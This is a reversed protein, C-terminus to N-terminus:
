RSSRTRAPRPTAVESRPRAAAKRLARHLRVGLAVPDALDPWTVRLVTWGEEEIADQRRKEEFWGQEVQRPEDGYKARGDFEVALRCAPWGLDVWRVGLRTAIPVQLDPAPVGAAVAAWRLLSEGASEARGDAHQLVDRARRVGRRGASQELVRALVDPDAGARLASDAVGLGHAAPLVSACEVVTRELPAVPLDLAQSAEASREVRATWHERVGAQRRGGRVHPNLLSTVDVLAPIRVLDCGWLVAATEGSFWHTASRVAHVAAARCLLTYRAAEWPTSSPAAPAYVGRLVRVLDGARVRERLEAHPVDGSRVVRPVVPRVVAPPLRSPLTAAPPPEPREDTRPAREPAATM